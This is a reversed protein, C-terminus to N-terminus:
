GIALTITFCITYPDDDKTRDVTSVDANFGFLGAIHKLNSQVSEEELVMSYIYMDVDVNCFAYMENRGNTDYDYEYEMEDTDDPDLNFTTRMIDDMHEDFFMKAGEQSYEYQQPQAPKQISEPKDNLIPINNEKCKKGGFEIVADDWCPTGTFDPHGNIVVYEWDTFQYKNYFEATWEAITDLCAMYGIDQHKYISKMYNDSLVAAILAYERAIDNVPVPAIQHIFITHEISDCDDELQHVTGWASAGIFPIPDISTGNSDFHETFAEKISENDTFASTGFYLGNEAEVTCIEKGNHKISYQM